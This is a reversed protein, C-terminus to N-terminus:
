RRGMMKKGNGGDGGEEEDCVEEEGRGDGGKRKVEKMMEMVEKGM